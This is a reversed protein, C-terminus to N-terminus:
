IAMVNKISQDERLVLNNEDIDKFFALSVGEGVNIIPDVPVDKKILENRAAEINNVYFTATPLVNKNGVVPLHSSDLGIAVRNIDPFKMQRWTDIKTFREDIILGLKESYWKASTKSDTVNFRALFAYEKIYDLM